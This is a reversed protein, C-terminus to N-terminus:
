DIFSLSSFYEFFMSKNYVNTEWITVENNNNDMVRLPTFYCLLVPETYDEFEKNTANKHRIDNAKTFLSDFEKMIDWTTFNLKIYTPALGKEYHEKKMCTKYVKFYKGKQPPLTIDRQKRLGILLKLGSLDKGTYHEVNYRSIIFDRKSTHIETNYPDRLTIMDDWTIEILSNVLTNIDKCPIPKNIYEIASASNTAENNKEKVKEDVSETVKQKARKYNSFFSNTDVYSDNSLNFTAAGSGKRAYKCNKIHNKAQLYTTHGHQTQRTVLTMKCACDDNPCIYDYITEDIKGNYKLSYITQDSPISEDKRKRKYKITM